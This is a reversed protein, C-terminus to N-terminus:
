MVAWVRGTQDAAERVRDCVEDKFAKLGDNGKIETAFRQFFAGDIGHEAM